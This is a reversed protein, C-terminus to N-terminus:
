RAYIKEGNYECKKEGEENWSVKVTETLDMDNGTCADKEIEVLGQNVLENLTIPDCKDRNCVGKNISLSAYVCAADEIEKVFEDCQKQNASHLSGTFNVTVITGILAVFFIVALLEILTFGKNEM